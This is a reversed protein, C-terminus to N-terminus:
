SKEAVTEVGNSSTKNILEVIRRNISQLKAQGIELDTIVKGKNKYLNDLETLESLSSM